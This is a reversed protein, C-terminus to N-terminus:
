FALSSNQHKKYQRIHKQIGNKVREHEQKREKENGKTGKQTVFIDRLTM